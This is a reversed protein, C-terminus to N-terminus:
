GLYHSCPAPPLLTSPFAREGEQRGGQGGQNLVDSHTSLQTATSPSPTVVMDGSHSGHQM